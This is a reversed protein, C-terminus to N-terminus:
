VVQRLMDEIKCALAEITYPKTLMDMGADLFEGRVVAPKAYGTVFLVKLGPRRARVMEALQRGNMGPLGVDTVLLDLHLGSDVLKLASPGDRAEHTTYGLETLVEVTVMRVTDEDEVILVSEGAGAPMVSPPGMADSASGPAADSVESAASEASLGSVASPDGPLYLMVRTGAGPTSDIAVHGGSQKVYGYIMSLGLGTGQGIPKTTFFPDFAKAIVAPTMGSGTDAVTLSLYDGPPLDGELRADGAKLEILSTEITLEGGDPMADRANIALNLLANELQHADTFAPPLGAQLRTRLRVSEGLTRRMLEEMGTVLANLPVPQPDLSQRRSFALLRQTLAAARQASSQAAAIHRTLEGFQRAELRRHMLELNTMMAALLNNFDHALGGTLQGVAEMKQSQRLQEEARALTETQAREDTVDRAVAYSFEGEPVATWNLWRYSGDKHLFRCVYGMNPKGGRLRDFQQRTALVDDPHVMDMFPRGTAEEFSWGLVRGFAPNVSTFWGKSNVVVFVEQSVRWIRDRELTREAVRAELTENLQRLADEQVKRETIDRSIGFMGLLTGDVAVWPSKTSLFLREVPGGPSQIPVIEEFAFTCRSTMVQQDNKMVEAARQPPMWCTDDTHLLQDRPTNFVKCVASNVHVYRGSKDKVYIVDPTGDSVMQLLGRTQESLATELDLAIATSSALREAMVQATTEQATNLVGCVRGFDDRIPIFSYAFYREQLAGFQMMDLRTSPTSFAKGTLMVQHLQPGITDWIEHWVEKANRGFAWPHKDAAAPIYADGYLLYFEPGWYVSM